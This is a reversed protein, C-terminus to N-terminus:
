GPPANGTSQMSAFRDGMRPTEPPATVSRRAAERSMGAEELAAAAEAQAAAQEMASVPDIAAVLADFDDLRTKFCEEVRKRGVGSNVINDYKRSLRMYEQMQTEVYIVNGDEETEFIIKQPGKARIDATPLAEPGHIFALLKLEDLTVLDLPISHHLEGKLRVVCSFTKQDM